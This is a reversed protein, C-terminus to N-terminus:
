WRGPQGGGGPQQGGGANGGNYNYSTIVSSLSLTALSTGGSVTADTTYGCFSTGGSVTAGSSLPYSSGQSLKPSSVVLTYGQRSYDRPVSFAFINSDSGDSLTIYQGSSLSSGGLVIVPQTTTKQTPTSTTGGNVTLTQDTSPM